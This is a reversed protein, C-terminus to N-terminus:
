IRSKGAEIRSNVENMTRWLFVSSIRMENTNLHGHGWPGKKKEDMEGLPFNM